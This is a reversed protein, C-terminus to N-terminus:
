DEGLMLKSIGYFDEYPQYDFYDNKIRQSIKLALAKNDM